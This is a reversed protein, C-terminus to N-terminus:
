KALRGCEDRLAYFCDNPKNSVSYIDYLKFGKANVIKLAANSLGLDAGDYDPQGQNYRKRYLTTLHPQIERALDEVGKNAEEWTWEGTFTELGNNQQMFKICSFGEWSWKSGDPKQGRAISEDYNSIARTIEEVTFGDKLRANIAHRAQEITNSSRLKKTHKAQNWFEVVASLDQSKCDSKDSLPADGSEKDEKDQSSIGSVQSSIPASERKAEGKAKVAKKTSALVNKRKAELNAEGNPEGHEKYFTDRVESWPIREIHRYASTNTTASNNNYRFFKHCFIYNYEEWFTVKGHLKVIANKVAKESIQALTAIMKTTTQNVGSANGGPLLFITFFTLKTKADLKLFWTENFLKDDMNRMTM